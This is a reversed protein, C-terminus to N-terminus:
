KRGTIAVMYDVAAERPNKAQLIPRGVVLASAGMKMAEDPSVTRQQDGKEELDFRIGPTVLYLGQGQLIKLEEASCVIGTLGSQRVLIALEQVHTAISQSKLVSPLSGQSFSTLITVALIKFPRISNLEKELKALKQLAEQGAQAHVTVLTAGSDFSARVASEMTSPIDFFKCDVFLSSKKAIELCLKQGYRHILRPGLKFCGAVDALDDVLRLAEIDTDVDLAVILPNSILQKM